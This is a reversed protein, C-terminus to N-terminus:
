RAGDRLPLIVSFGLDENNEDPEKKVSLCLGIAEGEPDFVLQQQELRALQTRREGSAFNLEFKTLVPDQASVKWDLADESEFLVLAEKAESQFYAGYDKVIARYRVGDFWIFNDDSPFRVGEIYFFNGPQKRWPGEPHEALALGMRVNGGHPLPGESVGKYIMRYQGDPGRTITPLATMLHDWSGPTPEVVPVESREWPGLPHKARAYGIRQHNRHDWFQGNGQNGTYFIWFCGEAFFVTPNHCNHADWFDGERRGIITTPNLWPGFASDGEAVAIESHTVWGNFGHRRHWRAFIRYWRGEHHVASGGWIHYDPDKFITEPRAPGLRDSSIVGSM